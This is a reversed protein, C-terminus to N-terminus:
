KIKDYKVSHIPTEPHASEELQSFPYTFSLPKIQSQAMSRHPAYHEESM